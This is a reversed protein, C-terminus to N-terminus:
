LIFDIMKVEIIKARTLHVDLISQWDDPSIRLFSRDRLIGANNILIDVKGFKEMTPAVIAEKDCVNAYNAMATGGM